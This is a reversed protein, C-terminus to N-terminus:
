CATLAAQVDFSRKLEELSFPRGRWIGPRQAAHSKLASLFWAQEHHITQRRGDSGREATGLLGHDQPGRRHTQRSVVQTAHRPRDFSLLPCHMGSTTPHAKLPNPRCFAM